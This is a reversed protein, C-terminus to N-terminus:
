LQPKASYETVAEKSEWEEAHKALAWTAEMSRYLDELAKQGQRANEGFLKM